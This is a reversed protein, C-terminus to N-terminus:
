SEPIQQRKLVVQRPWTSNGKFNLTRLLRNPEKQVLNEAQKNTMKEIQTAFIFHCSQVYICSYSIHERCLAYLASIHHILQNYLKTLRGGVCLHWTQSLSNIMIIECTVACNQWELM